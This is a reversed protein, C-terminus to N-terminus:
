GPPDLLPEPTATAAPSAGAAIPESVPPETRMGAARLPTVPSFVVFPRILRYPTTGIDGVRSVIPTSVRVASSAARRAWASAPKSARSGRVWPGGAAGMSIADNSGGRGAFIATRRGSWYGVATVSSIWFAVSSAILAKWDNPAVTSYGDTGRSKESSIRLLPVMMLASAYRTWAA